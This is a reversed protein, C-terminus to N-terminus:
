WLLRALSRISSPFRALVAANRQAVFQKIRTRTQEPVSGGLVQDVLPDFQQPSFVTNILDIFQAHYLPLVDPHTLLEHLGDLGAYVHIDRNIDQGTDGQGFLTDLDHALLWFRPDQVGRYMAYDDGRPTTLGGERNGCLADVALFRLWQDLRTVKRVEEVLNEFPTNNLVYTLRIVDNYDNAAVNTQKEYPTRYNAPNTGRYALDATDNMCRYVNGDPDSPFHRASFENDLVEVSAYSGFM